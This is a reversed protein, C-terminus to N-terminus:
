PPCPLLILRKQFALGHMMKSSASGGIHPRNVYGFILCVIAFTNSVMSLVALWLVPMLLSTFAAFLCVGTLYHTKPFSRLIYLSVPMSKLM